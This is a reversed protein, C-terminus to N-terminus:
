GRLFVLTLTLIGLLTCYLAFIKLSHQSLYRLLWDIALYGVVVATFFGAAMVPLFSALHNVRRLDWLGFIGAALMVPVAMLFTYRGASARDLHRMIGGAITAGSRSIGPFLALIQVAGIWLADKWSLNHLDRNRQGVREALLLLFATGFLFLATLDPRKFASEVADKLLIGAVGAPLTSLLLLWGLRSEFHAFPTRNFLDRFVWFLIRYLDSRFYIIVAVLTGVQVLVDFPFIQDEPLRWGLIYPTIVLHASSSIPLFETIGQVIGLVIAQVFNM